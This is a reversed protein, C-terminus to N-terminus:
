HRRSKTKRSKTKRSKKSRKKSNKSKKNRRRSGGPMADINIKKYNYTIWLERLKQKQTHDIPKISNLKAYLSVLVENKDNKDYARNISTVLDDCERLQKNVHMIEDASVYNSKPLRPLDPALSGEIGGFGTYSDPTKALEATIKAHENKYYKDDYKLEPDM